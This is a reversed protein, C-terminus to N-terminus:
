GATLGSSATCVDPQRRYDFHCIAFLARCGPVVVSVCRLVDRMSYECACRTDVLKLSVGHEHPVRESSSLLLQFRLAMGDPSSSSRCMAHLLPARCTRPPIPQPRLLFRHIKYFSSVHLVNCLTFGSGAAQQVSLPQHRLAATASRAAWRHDRM